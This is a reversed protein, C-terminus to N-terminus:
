ELAKQKTAIRKNIIDELYSIVERCTEENIEKDDKLFKKPHILNRKDRISHAMEKEELWEPYQIEAIANIYDELRSTAEVSTFGDKGTVKKLYPKKFYDKVDIESLWDLLFAELVSGSMVLTSKYAKAEFCRKVEKVDDQMAKAYETNKYLIAEKIKELAAGTGIRRLETYYALLRNYALYEDQGATDSEMEAMSNEEIENEKIINRLEDWNISNM